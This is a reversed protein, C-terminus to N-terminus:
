NNNRWIKSKIIYFLKPSICAIVAQLKRVTSYYDGLLYYKINKRLLSKMKNLSSPNCISDNFYMVILNIIENCLEERAAKEVISNKESNIIRVFTNITNVKHNSYGSRTAAGERQYYHYVSENPSYFINDNYQLYRYAFDLDETAGTDDLFYLNNKRIIDMHYLKNWAFGKVCPSRMLSNKSKLGSMKIPADDSKVSITKEDYDICYGSCILCDEYEMQTEFFFELYNSEVWDDPDPFIIYDGAANDIGFNRASPLGGNSKHVARILDPFNEAYNDCIKGSSDTSGDDVLIIEYLAKDLTQNLLSDVCRSLYQEMNYIPVVVSIKKMQKLILGRNMIYKDICDM